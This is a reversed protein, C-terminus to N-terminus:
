PKNKVGERFRAAAADALGKAAHFHTAHLGFVSVDMEALPKLATMAIGLEVDKSSMVVVMPKAAPNGATAADPALLEALSRFPANLHV